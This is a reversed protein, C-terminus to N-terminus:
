FCTRKKRRKRRKKSRHSLELVSRVPSLYYTARRPKTRLKTIKARCSKHRHTKSRKHRSKKHDRDHRHRKKPKRERDRIIKTRIEPERVHTTHSRTHTVRRMRRSAAAYDEQLNKMRKAARHKFAEMKAPVNGLVDLNRSLMKLQGDVNCMLRDLEPSSVSSNMLETLEHLIHNTGVLHHYNKDLNKILPNLFHDKWRRFKYAVSLLGHYDELTGLNKFADCAGKKICSPSRSRSSDHTRDKSPKRGSPKSHPSKSSVRVTTRVQAAFVRSKHEDASCGGCTKVGTTM